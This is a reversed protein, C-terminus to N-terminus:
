VVEGGFQPMEVDVGGKFGRNVVERGGELRKPDVRGTTEVVGKVVEGRGKDREPKTGGDLVLQIM